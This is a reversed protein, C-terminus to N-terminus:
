RGETWWPTGRGREHGREQGHHERHRYGQMPGKRDGDRHVGDPRHAGREAMRKRPAQLEEETLAGDGDTDLRDLIRDFRSTAPQVGSIEDLSLLGDGDADMRAILAAQRAARRMEEREARLAEAYASVEEPSLLGDGDADAAAFREAQRAEVEEVTVRGDGDADYSLIPMGFGPGGHGGRPAQAMPREAPRAQAPAQDPAQSQALALGASGVMLVLALGTMSLATTKM